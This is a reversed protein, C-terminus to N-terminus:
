QAAAIAAPCEARERGALRGMVVPQYRSDSGHRDGFRRAHVLGAFFGAAGGAVAWIEGAGGVQGLGIAGALMALLPVLYMAVSARVLATEALGILVRDGIDVEIGGGTVRVTRLRDGLLRGLLGGGCGRGEACRRCAQQAECRVWVVDGSVRLVTAPETIM